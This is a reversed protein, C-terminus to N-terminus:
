VEIIKIGNAVNFVQTNEIIASKGGNEHIHGCILYKPKLITIMNNICCLGIDEEQYCEGYGQRIYSLNKHSPPNHAVIIDINENKCEDIIEVTMKNLEKLTKTYAFDFYEETWAFGYINIYKGNEKISFKDNELMTIFPYEKEIKKSGVKQLYFDHNGPILIVKKELYSLYKLMKETEEKAGLETLDGAIILVDYQDKFGFRIKQLRSKSNHLDSLCLFKM